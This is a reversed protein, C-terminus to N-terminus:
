TEESPLLLRHYFLLVATAWWKVWNQSLQVRCLGHKRLRCWFLCLVFSWNFFYYYIVHVYNYICPLLHSFKLNVEPIKPGASFPPVLFNSNNSFYSLSENSSETPVHTRPLRSNLKDQYLNEKDMLIIENTLFESRLCFFEQDSVCVSKDGM